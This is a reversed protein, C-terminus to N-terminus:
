RLTRGMFMVGNLSHLSQAASERVAFRVFGYDINANGSKGHKVRVQIIPGFPRFLKRIDNETCFYSLDGVFLTTSEEEQGSQQSQHQLNDNPNNM